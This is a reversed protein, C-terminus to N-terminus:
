PSKPFHEISSRINLINTLSRDCLNASRGIPSITPISEIARHPHFFTTFGIALNAIAGM